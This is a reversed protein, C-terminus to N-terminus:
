HLVGELRQVDGDGLLHHLPVEVLDVGVLAAANGEVLVELEDLLVVGSRYSIM